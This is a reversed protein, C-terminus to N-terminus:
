DIPLSTLPSQASAWGLGFGTSVMTVLWWPGPTGLLAIWNQRHYRDAGGTKARTYKLHEM